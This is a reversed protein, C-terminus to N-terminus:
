LGRLSEYGSPFHLQGSKCIDKSYLKGSAEQEAFYIPM